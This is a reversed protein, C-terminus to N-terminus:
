AIAFTRRRRFAAGVGGFGLIMMAWTAPEPVAGTAVTLNDIQWWQLGQAAITVKSLGSRNLLLTELGATADTTYNIFETSGDMFYFQLTNMHRAGQNRLDAVDLSVLDFAEGDTRQITMPYSDWRHAFTGGGPDANQVADKQWILFHPSDSYSSTFTFDGYAFAAPGITDNGTGAKALDDFTLVTTAAAAPFATAVSAAAAAAALLKNM